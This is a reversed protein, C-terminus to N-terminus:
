FPCEGDHFNRVVEKPETSRTYSCGVWVYHHRGTSAIKVRKGQIQEYGMELLIATLTRNKPIDNGEAECLQNLWTVDLLDEDVVACRHQAIADEVALREPSTAISMMMQRAKTDPARGQPNFESSISWDLLWRKLADARRGTDNFLKEFYAEAGKEGGLEKYLQDESQIRSFIVCYRRDGSTLPIADKHNTLMLYSTFNPVTRHDRGKEEIQISDNTIFPKMRDLVEYRNTGSIRIEEVGIVLSGHAWGTFRGAIATPDLNRVHEGLIYQLLKVFYSKGSGQAGQLLLAWNVRKGPNQVVYALWDILIRQEREDGISFKVHNLVMDVVAQGDENIVACPEVGSLYYANLMAKAEYEFVMDVGPWFMKDVVTDIQFVNLAMHAATKEAVVCEVMRDFKANFAERKIAYNLRTNAFECTNEVYVWDACWEPSEVEGNLRKERKPPMLAKKIDTKTLGKGEAKGFGLALEGALMSRADSPLEYEPLAQVKRKFTDYQERSKVDAAEELLSEVKDVVIVQRGGVMDIVSAFTVPNARRNKGFSEWRKRNNEADYKDPALRSFKDFLKWGVASGGFQHYLAMGVRLWSSGERAHEDNLKAMYTKVEEVSLELPQEAIVSMLDDDDLSGGSGSIMLKGIAIEPLAPLLSTEHLTDIVGFLTKDTYGQGTAIYGKGSARTDFGKLGLLDSGNILDVDDPVSFAYHEGGNLTGQLLADEWDLSCGLLAEVAERTVGKYTDLDLVIAGKPIMIGVLPSNVKGTYDRWDTDKPVAPAKKKDLPFLVKNM